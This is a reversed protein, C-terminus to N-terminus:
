AGEFDRQHARGFLPKAEFDEGAGDAAELGTMANGEDVVQEGNLV